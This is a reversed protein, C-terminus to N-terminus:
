RRFRRRLRVSRRSSRAGCPARRPPTVILPAADLVLRRLVRAVEARERRQGRKTLTSRKPRRRHEITAKGKLIGRIAEIPNEPVPAFVIRDGEDVIVVNSAAWRERVEAPISVQGARTIKHRWMKRAMSANHSYTIALHGDPVNDAVPRCTGPQLWAGARPRRARVAVKRLALVAAPRSGESSLLIAWSVRHM